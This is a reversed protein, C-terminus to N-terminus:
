TDNPYVGAKSLEHVLQGLVADYDHITRVEEDGFDAVLDKIEQLALHQKELLNRVATPLESLPEFRHIERDYPNIWAGNAWCVISYHWQDHDNLWEIETVEWISGAPTVRERDKHDRDTEDDLSYILEGERFRPDPRDSM